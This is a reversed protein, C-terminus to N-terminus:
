VQGFFTENHFYCSINSLLSNKNGRTAADVACGAGTAGGGIILVDFSESQLSTIQEARTPLHRTPKAKGLNTEM